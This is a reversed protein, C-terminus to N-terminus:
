QFYTDPNELREREEPSMNYRSLSLKINDKGSAIYEIKSLIKKKISNSVDLHKGDVKLSWDDSGGGPLLIFAYSIEIRHGGLEFRFGSKSRRGRYESIGIAQNDEIAKLILRGTEEDTFRKSRVWDFLGENISNKEESIIKRVLREVDNENLRVVKKM